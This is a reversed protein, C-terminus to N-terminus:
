IEVVSKSFFRSSSPASWRFITCHKNVYTCMSCSVSKLFINNSHHTNEDVKGQKIGNGKEGITFLVAAYNYTFQQTLEIKVLYLHLHKLLCFNIRYKHLCCFGADICKIICESALMGVSCQLFKPM